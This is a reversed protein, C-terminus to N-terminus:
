LRRELNEPARRAHCVAMVVIRDSEPLDYISYPFRRLVVRRVQGRIRSFLQPQNSIRELYKEIETRFEGGLGVRKNEYWAVSEDLEKQATRRFVLPLSM